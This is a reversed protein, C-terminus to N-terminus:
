TQTPSQATRALPQNVAFIDVKPVCDKICREFAPEGGVEVCRERVYRKLDSACEKMIKRGVASSGTMAVMNIPSSVLAAGLYM